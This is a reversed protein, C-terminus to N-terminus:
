PERFSWRMESLILNSIEPVFQKGDFILRKPQYLAEPIAPGKNNGPNEMYFTVGGKVINGLGSSECVMPYKSFENKLFLNFCENLGTDAVQCFYVRIAGARLMRSTDKSTNPNEELYIKYNETIMVPQLGVTPPHFHPSTKLAIIDTKRSFKQIIRCALTTKGTNQGSGAILLLGPLFLKNTQTSKM